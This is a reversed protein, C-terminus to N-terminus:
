RRSEMSVVDDPLLLPTATRSSMLGSAGDLSLFVADVDTVCVDGYRESDFVGVAGDALESVVDAYRNALEVVWQIRGASIRGATGSARAKRHPKIRLVHEMTFSDQLRATRETASTPRGSYPKARNSPSSTTRLAMKRHRYWTRRSIGEAEWPKTRAASDARPKAGKARRKAELRSMDRERRRQKRRANRQRKTFDNAGITTLGLRKRMAYTVGLMEALKDASPPKKAKNAIACRILNDSNALAWRAHEMIWTRMTRENHKWSKAMHFLM